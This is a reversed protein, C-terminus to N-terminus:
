GADSKEKPLLAEASIRIENVLPDISGGKLYSSMGETFERLGEELAEIRKLPDGPPLTGTGGDLFAISASRIFASVQSDPAGALNKIWGELKTLREAQTDIENARAILEAGQQAVNMMKGGFLDATEEHSLGPRKELEAKLRVNEEWIEHLMMAKRGGDIGTIGEEERVIKLSRYWKMEDAQTDLEEYADDLADLLRPLDARSHAFFEADDRTQLDKRGPIRPIIAITQTCRRNQEDRWVRIVKAPMRSALAVGRGEFPGETAAEVRERKERLEAEPIRNNM